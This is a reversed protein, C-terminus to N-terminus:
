SSGPARNRYLQANPVARMKEQDLSREVFGAIKPVYQAPDALMRNYDVYMVEMNPQRALWYKIVKLHERFQAEMEEDSITSTENRRELMKRQSALIEPIQREMFLIKYHHEPPLHELLASIVKVLKGDADKLWEKRGDALQKVVELEFYGNPNDEDASRISDTLVPLGGEALMKMMMSTGSRPLGSVVIVTQPASRPQSRSGFVKKLM